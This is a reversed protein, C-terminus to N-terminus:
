EWLTLGLRPKGGSTRHTGKSLFIDTRIKPKLSKSSHDPIMFWLPLIMGMPM